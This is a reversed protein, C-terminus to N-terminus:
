KKKSEAEAKQRVLSAVLAMNGIAQADAIQKDYDIGAGSGAPPPAGKLREDVAKQLSDRFAKEINALSGNMSKEDTYDLTDVLEKPLGKTGLTELAKSRLERKTIDAERKQIDAEREQIKQQALQEATMNKEKEWNGKATALAKAVRKDFESQNATDKLFDDFSPAKPPDTPPVAPPDAPPDAFFQLNMPIRNKFTTYM